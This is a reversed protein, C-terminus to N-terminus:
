SVDHTVLLDARLWSRGAAIPRHCLGSTEARTTALEDASIAAHEGLAAGLRPRDTEGTFLAAPAAQQRAPLDDERPDRQPDEPEGHRNREERPEPRPMLAWDITIPDLPCPPDAMGRGEGEQSEAQLSVLKRSFPSSVGDGRM